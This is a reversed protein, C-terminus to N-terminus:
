NYIFLTVTDVCIAPIFDIVFNSFPTFFSYSTCFPVITRLRRSQTSPLDNLTILPWKRLISLDEQTKHPTALKRSDIGQSWAERLVCLVQGYAQLISVASNTLARVIM